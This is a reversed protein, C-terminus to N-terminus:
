AVSSRRRKVAREVATVRRELDENIKLAIALLRALEKNETVMAAYSTKWHTAEQEPSEFKVAKVGSKDTKAIRKHRGELAREIRGTISKDAYEKRTLGGEIDKMLDRPDDGIDIIPRFHDRQWDEITTSETDCIAKFENPFQRMHIVCVALDYAYRRMLRLTAAVNNGTRVMGSSKSIAERYWHDFRKEKDKM